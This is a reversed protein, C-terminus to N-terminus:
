WSSSYFVMETQFDTKELVNKLICITREIDEYYWKNYETNGFFFGSECPLLERAIEPNVIVEGVLISCAQVKKCVGLLEELKEKSVVYSGCDDVNNQVNKVFWTHIQNTKRWYGVPQFITEFGYNHDTDWTSYHSVYEHQYIEALKMDVDKMSIGVWEDITSSQYEKPRHLWSYYNNVNGLKKLLDNDALDTTLIKVKDLYMDLGM